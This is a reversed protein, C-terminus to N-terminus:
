CVTRLEDITSFGQLVKEIGDQKLTRMGQAIATQRIDSAKSRTFILERIPESVVLLEHIAMRKLYGVQCCEHCGDAHRLYIRSQPHCGLTEFLKPDGYEAQITAYGEAGLVKLDKCKPCLMRLLRQALVGLLADAFSYPDLGMKLLRAITEAATNTHLTSLVLHGTLSAEVAISATEEDRMEGVMIIDPDARLFSRLVTAFTIGAKPHVQVQRLGRQTIEVPDEVTLIKVDTKNIHNLASHLTTTKGSGTPGVCLILGYPQEVMRKFERSNWESLSLETLKCPTSPPLIRLVADEGAVTPYTELRLEIDTQGPPRYNIKGSQPMRHEAIDLRAMIKLRSLVTARFSRPFSLADVLSGDVRFRVQVEKGALPEIHIDSARRTHASEIISHVLKVVGSDSASTTAEEAKLSSLEGPIEEMSAVIDHLSDQWAQDEPRKGLLHQITARIDAALAVRYEVHFGSFANRVHDDLDPDIPYEVAVFVRNNQGGIPVFSGTKYQEDKLLLEMLKPPLSLHPDFEYAPIRFFNTFSQLVVKKSVGYHALLIEEVRVQDTQATKQAKELDALTILNDDLLKGFEGRQRSANRLRVVHMRTKSTMDEFLRQVDADLSKLYDYFRNEVVSLEFRLSIEFAQDVNEAVSEHRAILDEVEKVEKLIASEIASDVNLVVSKQKVHEAVARVWKAHVSEEHALGLWFDEYRPFRKAFISYLDSLRQEFKEVFELLKDTTGATM